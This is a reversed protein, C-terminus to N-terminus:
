HTALSGRFISNRIQGRTEEGSTFKIFSAGLTIENNRARRAFDLTLVGGSCRETEARVTCYVREVLHTTWDFSARTERQIWVNGKEKEAENRKWGAGREGEKRSGRYILSPAPSADSLRNLRHVTFSITAEVGERDCLTFDVPFLSLFLPLSRRSKLVSPFSFNSKRCPLM